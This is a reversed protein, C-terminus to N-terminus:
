DDLAAFLEAAPLAFGPLQPSALTAEAPLRGSDLDGEFVEVLRRRPEILWCVDVGHDRYFRCKLRQSALSEDPSRIEIALAPPLGGDPGGLPRGTAWYAVGPIRSERGGATEFFVRCEIVAQGGHVRSHAHLAWTIVAGVVGHAPRPTVKQVVKGCIYEIEPKEAPLALYEEFTMRQGDYRSRPEFPPTQTVM